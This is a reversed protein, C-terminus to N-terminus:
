SSEVLEHQNFWYDRNLNLLKEVTEGDPRFYEDLAVGHSDPLKKKTRKLMVRDRFFRRVSGFSTFRNEFRRFFTKVKNSRLIRFLVPFRISSYVNREPVQNPLDVQTEFFRSLLARLEETDNNRLESNAILLLRGHGVAEVWKEVWIGFSCVQHYQQLFEIGTRRSLQIGHHWSESFDTSHALDAQIMQNHWSVVSQASDRILLIVKVQPLNKVAHRLQDSYVNLTTAEVRIAAERDFMANLEFSATRHSNERFEPCLQFTEKPNSVGIQTGLSLWDAFATTGCKPFGLVLCNVRAEVLKQALNGPSNPADVTSDGTSM